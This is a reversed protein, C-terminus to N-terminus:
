STTKPILSSVISLLVLGGLGVGATVFGVDRKKKDFIGFLLGGIGALAVGSQAGSLASPGPASLNFIAGVVAGVVAAEALYGLATGTTSTPNRRGRRRSKGAKRMAVAVAQKQPYGDARLRRINKSITKSSSGRALPMSTAYRSDAHQPIMGGHNGSQEAGDAPLPMGETVCAGTLSDLDVGNARIFLIQPGIARRAKLRGEARSAARPM